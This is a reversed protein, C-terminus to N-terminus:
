INPLHICIGQTYSCSLQNTPHHKILMRKPGIKRAIKRTSFPRLPEAPWNYINPIMVYMTEVVLGWSTPLITDWALEPPGMSWLTIQKQKKVSTSWGQLLKQRFAQRTQSKGNWWKMPYLQHKASFLSWFQYLFSDINLRLNAPLFLVFGDSATAKKNLKELICM